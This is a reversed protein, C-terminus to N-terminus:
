EVPVPEAPVVPAPDAKTIVVAATYTKQVQAVALQAKPNTNLFAEAAAEAELFTGYEVGFNPSFPNEKNLVIFTM